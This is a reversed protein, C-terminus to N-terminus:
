LILIMYCIASWELGGVRVSWELGGVRVVRCALKKSEPVGRDKTVAAGFQENAVSRSGKDSVTTTYM